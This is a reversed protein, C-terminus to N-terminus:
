RGRTFDYVIGGDAQTVVEGMGAGDLMDGHARDYAAGLRVSALVLTAIISGVSAGFVLGLAAWGLRTDLYSMFLDLM